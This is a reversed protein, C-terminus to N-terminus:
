CRMNSCARLHQNSSATGFFRGAPTVSSFRPLKSALRLREPPLSTLVEKLKKLHLKFCPRLEPWVAEFKASFVEWQLESRVSQCKRKGICSAFKKRRPKVRSCSLIQSKEERRMIANLAGIALTSSSVVRGEEGRPCRGVYGCGEVGREVPVEISRTSQGVM